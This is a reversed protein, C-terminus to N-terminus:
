IDFGLDLDDESGGGVLMNDDDMVTPKATAADNIKTLEYPTFAVKKGIFNNKIYSDGDRNVAAFFGPFKPEGKQNTVLKIKTEAGKKKNLIASVIERLDDWNKPAVEKEGSDIAAGFAPHIADIAHKFLLMMSEVNSAQPISRTEGTKSDKFKSEGREFDSKGMYGNKTPEFITHEFGGDDNSFKLVITKFKKTPDKKGDFNKVECGDFMVDYIANGKLAPKVNSQSAGATTSFSFGSM